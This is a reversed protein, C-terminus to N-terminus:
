KKLILISAIISLLVYQVLGGEQAVGSCSFLDEILSTYTAVYIFGFIGSIALVKKIM